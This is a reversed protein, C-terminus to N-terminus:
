KRKWEEIVWRPLGEETRGLEELKRDLRKRCNTVEPVSIGLRAAIDRRKVVGARLCGFLKEVMEDGGRLREGIRLEAERRVKDEAAWKAGDVESGSTRAAMQDFVSRVQGDPGPELIDWESRMGGAEKLKHLRRVEHSVKRQLTGLLRERTWGLALRVEGRLAGAIAEAAVSNADYGEPIVASRKGRWKRRRIEQRAFSVLEPLLEGWNEWRLRRQVREEPREKIEYEQRIRELKELISEKAGM